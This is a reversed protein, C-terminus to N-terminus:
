PVAMRAIGSDFAGQGDNRAHADPDPEGAIQLLLAPEDIAGQPADLLDKLVVAVHADERQTEDRAGHHHDIRDLVLPAGKQGTRIAIPAGNAPRLTERQMVPREIEVATVPRTRTPVGVHSHRAEPTRIADEMVTRKSARVPQGRGLALALLNSRSVVRGRIPISIRLNRLVLVTAESSMIALAHDAGVRVAVLGAVEAGVVSRGPAAQALTGLRPADLGLVDAGAAESRGHAPQRTAGVRLALETHILLVRREATTAWEVELGLRVVKRRGLEAAGLRIRERDKTVGRTPSGLIIDLLRALSLLEGHVRRKEVAGRIAERTAM